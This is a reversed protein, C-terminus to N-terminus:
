IENVLSVLDWKSDASNYIFGLYMTKSIVTTTPLAIAVARYIANWALSRATGDDKIRVLLTNGNAPTGSPAAFTAGAALATIYYENERGNGAPTPTASSTIYSSTLQTIQKVEGTSAIVLVSDTTAGASPTATIGFTGNVTLKFSPTTQNIGVNGSNLFWMSLISDTTNSIGFGTSNSEIGFEKSVGTREWRLLASDTSRVTLKANKTGGGISLNGSDDIIASSNQILKGTAGDFRAIANDTSSAAGQTIADYMAKTFHGYAAGSTSALELGSLENHLKSIFDKLTSIFSKKNKGGQYVEILENGTFSSVTDKLDPINKNAM